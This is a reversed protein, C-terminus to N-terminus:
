RLLYRNIAEYLHIRDRGSVNHGHGPYVLYDFIKRNTVGAKLMRLSHQWVVVDDSTGHILLVDAKIKGVKKTMDSEAYGEPNQQPTDM